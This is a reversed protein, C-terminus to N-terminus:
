EQAAHSAGQLATSSFGPSSRKKFKISLWNVSNSRDPEVFIERTRSMAATMPKPYVIFDVGDDAWMPMIIPCEELIYFLCKFFTEEFHDMGKALGSRAAFTGITEDIAARYDPNTYYEHIVMHHYRHYDSRNLLDDWRIIEQPMALKALISSNRAIWQDGEQQSQLHKESASGGICNHRQLTDAVAVICKGFGAINVREVTAALKEAEHYTKGVSVLLLAVKGAYQDPTCKGQAQLSAKYM